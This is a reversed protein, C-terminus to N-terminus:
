KVLLRSTVELSFVEVRNDKLFRVTMSQDFNEIHEIIIQDGLHINKSNLFKLFEDSSKTVACFEVKDEIKFENLFKYNVSKFNGDKDPIPSGHPDITPYNLIEDMKDFFLQSKIHEVQEAIDHVHEWGIGMKEVLFMETLRHKRVILAAKLVGQETLRLPKYTEYFVLDKEALKKMMSNVTPMKINLSKSLDKVNVEGRGNGSLHFLTKLYNEEVLSNM